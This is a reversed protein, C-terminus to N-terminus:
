QAAILSILANIHSKNENLACIYNLRVGGSTTFTNAGRIAIEELTELCDVSFGPCIIDLTKVSRQPLETLLAQTSPKLWKDYGFQSQYCLTWKDDPLQLADALLRATRACQTPYPDGETAFREPIGHFSILLHEARDRKQWESRVSEALANIYAPHDHYDHIRTITPQAYTPASREKRLGVCCAWRSVRDFSSAASTDSYQPFLPLVIIKEVGSDHLKKLGAKISPNGYNMGLAVCFQKPSTANLATELASTLAEIHVRMPSGQPTWIEQYLKASKPARFPLVLGYLIPLWVLRPLHVVRRDSLFERLYCRVASTTPANPTGTNTLLIGIM